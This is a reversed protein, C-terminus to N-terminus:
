FKPSCKNSPKLDDLGRIQGQLQSVERRLNSLSGESQNLNLHMKQLEKKANNARQQSQDDSNQLNFYSTAAQLRM